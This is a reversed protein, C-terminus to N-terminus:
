PTDFPLSSSQAIKIYRGGMLQMIERWLPTPLSICEKLILNRSTCCPHWLNEEIERELAGPAWVICGLFFRFDSPVARGNQVASLAGEVGSNAFVGPLIEVGGVDEKSSIIYVRRPEDFGGFYLRPKSGGESSLWPVETSTPRNLILGVLSGDATAPKFVCVVTQWLAPEEEMARASESRLLIGGSEVLPTAHAWTAESALAENQDRLLAANKECAFGREFEEGEEEQRGEEGDEEESSILMQRFSRWDVEPAESADEGDRQCGRWVMRRSVRAWRAEHPCSPGAALSSRTRESSRARGDVAAWRGVVRQTTSLPRRRTTVSLRM